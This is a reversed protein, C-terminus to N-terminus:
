YEPTQPLLLFVVNFYMPLFTGLHMQCYVTCMKVDLLSLFFSIWTIINSIVKSYSQHAKKGFFCVSCVRCEVGSCVSGV